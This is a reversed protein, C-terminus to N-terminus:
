GSRPSDLINNGMVLSGRSGGRGIAFGALFNLVLQVIGPTERATSNEAGVPLEAEAADVFVIRGSLELLFALEAFVVVEHILDDVGVILRAFM